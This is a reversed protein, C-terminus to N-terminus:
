KQKLTHVRVIYFIFSDPRHDHVSLPGIVQLALYSTSLGAFSLEANWRSRGTEQM